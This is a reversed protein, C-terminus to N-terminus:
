HDFFTVDEWIEPDDEHCQQCTHNDDCECTLEPSINYIDFMGQAEEFTM